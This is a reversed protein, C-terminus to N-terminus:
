FYLFILWTHHCAGTTGAVQSASPTFDSSGRLCLHCHASIVGSCELRLWLLLSWRLVWFVLGFCFYDTNLVGGQDTIFVIDTSGIMVTTTIAIARSVIASSSGFNVSHHM